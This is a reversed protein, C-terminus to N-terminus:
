VEFIHDAAPSTKTATIEEPLDAVINKIYEIMNVMVKGNKSFDFIMGHYDHEIGPHTAGSV